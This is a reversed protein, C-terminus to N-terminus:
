LFNQETETLEFTEMEELNKGNNGEGDFGGQCRGVWASITELEKIHAM